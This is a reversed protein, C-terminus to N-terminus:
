LFVSIGEVISTRLKPEIRLWDHYFWRKVAEFQQRKDASWGRGAGGSSASETQVEYVIRHAELYDRLEESAPAKMRNAAADREFPYAELARDAMFDDIGILLSETSLKEEGEKIKQELLGPNIVGEYVDFLTVYDYLVKHLL